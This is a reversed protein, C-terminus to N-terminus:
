DRDSFAQRESLYLGLEAILPMARSDLVTVRVRETTVSTVPVIRKYGVTTIEAVATWAGGVWADIRARAIRQGQAIPEQLVVRDFRVPRPLSITMESAARLTDLNGDILVAVDAAARVLNDRYREDLARRM